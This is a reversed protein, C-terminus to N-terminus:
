CETILPILVEQVLMKLKKELGVVWESKKINQSNQKTTYFILINLNKLTKINKIFYFSMNPNFPIKLQPKYAIDMIIFM